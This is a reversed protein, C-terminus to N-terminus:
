AARVMQKSNVGMKRLSHLRPVTRSFARLRKQFTATSRRRGGVADTGLEKTHVTPQFKRSELGQAIAVAMCPRGAVVKSKQASVEMHLGNEFKDVVFDVARKMAKIIAAPNGCASLTLDDVYLKATTVM